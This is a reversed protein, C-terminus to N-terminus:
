LVEYIKLQYQRDYVRLKKINHEKAYEFSLELAENFGLFLLQNVNFHYLAWTGIPREYLVLEHNSASLFAEEIIRGYWEKPVDIGLKWMLTKAFDYQMLPGNIKLPQVMSGYYIVPVRFESRNVGGHAEDGRGYGGHDAIFVLLTHDRMEPDQNIMETVRGVWTDVRRAVKNITDTQHGIEHGTTDPENVYLLTLFPKEKKVYEIAKDVIMENILVNDEDAIIESNPTIGWKAVDHKMIPNYYYDVCDLDIIHQWQPWRFFAATKHNQNQQKVLYFISPPVNYETKIIPDIEPPFSNWHTYGHQNTGLGRMLSNWNIASATPISSHCDLSSAGNAILYNLNPLQNNEILYSGFADSGFIIVHKIEKPKNM